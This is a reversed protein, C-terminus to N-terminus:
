NDVRRNNNIQHQDEPEPIFVTHLHDMLGGAIRCLVDNPLKGRVKFNTFTPTVVAEESQVKQGTFTVQVHLSVRQNEPANVCISM